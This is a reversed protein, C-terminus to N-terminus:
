SLIKTFHRAAAESRHAGAAASIRKRDVDMPRRQTLDIIRRVFAAEDSVLDEAALGLERFAAVDFAVVPRGAALVDMASMSWLANLKFPAVGGWSAGIAQIYATRDFYHHCDVFPLDQVARLNAEVHPNLASRSLDRGETPNTVLVRFGRSTKDYAETLLPFIVHAGYENYLRHNYVLLPEDVPEMSNALVFESEDIPPPLSLMPPLQISRGLFRKALRTILRVGFDSCTLVLDSAAVGELLRALVLWGHGHLDMSEEFVEDKTAADGRTPVYHVYSVVTADLGLLDRVIVSVAAAQEPMHVLIVAPRVDRILAVLEDWACGFRVHFKNIGTGFSHVHVRDDFAPFASPGGIHVDFAGNNVLSTLLVRNFTYISDAEFNPYNSPYVLSLLRPRM